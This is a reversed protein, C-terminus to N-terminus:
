AVRELVHDTHGTANTDEMLALFADELSASGRRVEEVHAGATVLASVIPAPEVHQSDKFDVVLRHPEQTVSAVQPLSRVTTLTADNWGTGIIEIEPHGTRARLEDPSGLALLHGARIIGVLSCLKEAEALDHTTLFVTAGEKQVLGAIDDRLAAAAVPDLGDTPEDLFVLQPHHFLTRAVALKQKMGKSWGGVQDNRREWLDFHTLLEQARARRQPASVGWIRGYFELNDLASLREYLGTHELLAGSQSRIAESDARPDHGLVEIRGSSPELLGLALRITTTKGAGNTGLFGFVIGSPVEFSMDDIAHVTGFQRTLHEARIAVHNM